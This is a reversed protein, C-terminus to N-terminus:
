EAQVLNAAQPVKISGTATELALKAVMHGHVAQYYNREAMTLATRADQVEILKNVGENYGVEALHLAEKAQDVNASQSEVFKAADEIGLVAQKVNLFALDTQELLRLQAQRVQAENQIVRGRTNLGDFVPMQAMLTVSLNDEWESGGGTIPGFSGAVGPKSWMEAVNLEVRPLRDSRTIKMKAEEVDVQKRLAKLDPRQVMALAQADALNVDIPDYTLTGTLTVESDLSVGILNLLNADANKWANELMIKQAEVNSIEVKARLVDFRSAAGQDFRKKTDLWHERSLQFAEDAVRVMDRALVADYYAKRVQSIALQQALDEGAEAAHTFAKAGRIAALNGGSAFLTQQLAVTVSYNDEAGLPTDRNLVEFTPPNPINTYSAQTALKPLWRSLAELRLGKARVLEQQAIGIQRNHALTMSEAQDLSLDGSLIPLENRGDTVVDYGSPRTAQSTSRQQNSNCGLTAALIVSLFCVFGPLLTQRCMSQNMVIM